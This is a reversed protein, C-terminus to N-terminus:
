AEQPTHSAWVRRGQETLSFWYPDESSRTRYAHGLDCLHNLDRQVTDITLPRGDLALYARVMDAEGGGTLGLYNIIDRLRTLRKTTLRM